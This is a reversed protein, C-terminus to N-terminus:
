NAGTLTSITTQKLKTAANKLDNRTKAIGAAYGIILALIVLLLAIIFGPQCM